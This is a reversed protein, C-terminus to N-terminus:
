GGAVPPTNVLEWFRGAYTNPNKLGDRLISVRNGPLLKVVVGYVDKDIDMCQRGADSMKVRNGKEM